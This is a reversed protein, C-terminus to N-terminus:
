ARVRSLAKELEKSGCKICEKSTNNMLTKCNVCRKM